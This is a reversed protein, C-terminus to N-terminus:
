PLNLARKMAKRMQDLILLNEEPDKTLDLDFQELQARISSPMKAGVLQIRKLYTQVEYLDVKKMLAIELVYFLMDMQAYMCARTRQDATSVCGEINQFAKIAYDPVNQLADPTEDLQILHLYYLVLGNIPMTSLEDGIELVTPIDMKQLIGFADKLAAPDNSIVKPHMRVYSNTLGGGTDHMIDLTSEYSLLSTITHNQSSLSVSGSTSSAIKSQMEERSILIQELQEFFVTDSEGKEKFLPALFAIADEIGTFTISVTEPEIQFTENEEWLCYFDITGEKNSEFKFIYETSNKKFCFAVDHDNEKSKWLNNVTLAFTAEDPFTPCHTHDTDKLFYDKVAKVLLSDLQQDFAEAAECKKAFLPEFVQVGEDIDKFQILYLEPQLQIADESVKLLACDLMGSEDTTDKTFKLYYEASAVTFLVVVSSDTVKENWLSQLQNAFDESSPFKAFIVMDSGSTFKRVEDLVAQKDQDEPLPSSSTPASGFIGMMKEVFADGSDYVEDFLPGLKDIVQQFSSLQFDEAVMVAEDDFQKLIKLHVGEANEHIKFYYTNPGIPFFFLIPNEERAEWLATITKVFAERNPFANFSAFFTNQVFSQVREEATLEEAMAPPSDTEVRGDTPSSERVVTNGSIPEDDDDADISLFAYPSAPETPDDTSPPTMSKVRSYLVTLGSLDTSSSVGSSSTEFPFVPEASENTSAGADNGARSLLSRINSFNTRMNELTPSTARTTRAEPSSPELPKPSSTSTIVHTSTPFSSSSSSPIISLSTM